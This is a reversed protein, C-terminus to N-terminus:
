HSVMVNLIATTGDRVKKMAAQLAGKLEAPEEVRAGALGFHSGLEAYDPGNLRSGIHM